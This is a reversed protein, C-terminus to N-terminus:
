TNKASDMTERAGDVLDVVLVVLGDESYERFLRDM